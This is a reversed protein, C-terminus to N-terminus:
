RRGMHQDSLWRNGRRAPAHFRRVELIEVLSGEHLNVERETKRPDKEAVWGGEYDLSFLLFHQHVQDWYVSGSHRLLGILIVGEKEAIAGIPANRAEQEAVDYGYDVQVEHTGNAFAHAVNMETTWHEGQFQVTNGKDRLLGRYLVLPFSLTDLFSCLAHTANFVWVAEMESVQSWRPVWQYVHGLTVGTTGDHPNQLLLFDENEELIARKISTLDACRASVSGRQRASSVLALGAAVGLALPLGNVLARAM